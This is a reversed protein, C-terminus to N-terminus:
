QTTPASTSPRTGILTGGPPSSTGGEHRARDWESAIIMFVMIKSLGVYFGTPELLSTVFSVTAIARHELPFGPNKGVIFWLNLTVLTLMVSLGIVGSDLAFGLIPTHPNLSLRTNTDLGFIGGSWFADFAQQNLVDRGSTFGHTTRNQTLFNVITTRNLVVLVTASIMLIAALLPRRRLGSLGVVSLALALGAIGGRGGSLLLGSALVVVSAGRIIWSWKSAKHGDSSNRRLVLVCIAVALFPAATTSNFSFGSIRIGYESNEGLHPLGSAQAIIDLASAVMGFSFGTLIQSINTASKAVFMAVLVSIVAILYTEFSSSSILAKVLGVLGAILLLGAVWSVTRFKLHGRMDKSRLVVLLALGYRILDLTEPSLTSIIDIPLVFGFLLLLVRYPLIVGLAMMIIPLLVSM